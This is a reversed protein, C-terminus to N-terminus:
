GSSLLIPQPYTEDVYGAGELVVYVDGRYHGATMLQRGLGTLGIAVTPIQRPPVNFESGAVRGTESISDLKWVTLGGQCARSWFCHVLVRFENHSVHASRSLVLLCDPKPCHLCGTHPCASPATNGASPGAQACLSGCPPAASAVPQNHHGTSHLSSSSSASGCAALGLALIIIVLIRM